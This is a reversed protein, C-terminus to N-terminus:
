PERMAGCASCFNWDEANVHRCSPCVLRKREQDDLWDEEAPEPGAGEIFPLGLKVSRACLACFHSEVLKGAELSTLHLTAKAKKCRDCVKGDM